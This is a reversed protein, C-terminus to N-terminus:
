AELGRITLEVHYDIFADRDGSADDAAMQPFAEWHSMIMALGHLSCWVSKAAMKVDLAPDFVGSQVGEGVMESLFTFARGKKEEDVYQELADVEVVGSFAATYHRPEELALRIYTTLCKRIRAPYPQDSGRMLDIKELLREFFADKLADILETKSGFYKYIAAPSYDIEEALRRISLGEEGDEAFVREAASLIAERVRERRRAAPSKVISASDSM